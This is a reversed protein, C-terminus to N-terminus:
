SDNDDSLLMMVRVLVIFLLRRASYCGSVVVLLLRCLEVVVVLLRDIQTEFSDFGFQTSAHVLADLLLFDNLDVVFIDM